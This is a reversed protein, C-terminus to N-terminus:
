KPRIHNRFYSSKVHSLGLIGPLSPARHAERLNEQRMALGFSNAIHFKRVKDACENCM